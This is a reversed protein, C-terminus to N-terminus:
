KTLKFRIVATRRNTGGSVGKQIEVPNFRWKLIYRMWLTDLSADASSIVKEVSEVKGQQSVSFKLAIESAQLGGAVYHYDPPEPLFLIQAKNVDGDLQFDGYAIPQLSSAPPNQRYGMAELRYRKESQPILAPPKASTESVPHAFSIDASKTRTFKVAIDKDPYNHQIYLKELLLPGIFSVSGYKAHKIEQPMIVVNFAFICFIHGMASISLAAKNVM